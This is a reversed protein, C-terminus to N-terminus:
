SPSVKEVFNRMETTTNTYQQVFKAFAEDLSSPEAQVQVLDDM